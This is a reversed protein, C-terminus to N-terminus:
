ALTKRRKSSMTRLWVYGIVGSLLSGAFVGMRVLRAHNLSAAEDFALTGIFLSMTFGIGCLIALGYLMSWSIDDALKAVKLKVALWCATYVGIQKGLFLGLGIGLPISHIVDSAKIDHFTVGANAFAFIPLIAFAVWPHLCHELRRLPSTELLEGTQLPIAFALVVGALTAHIGSKLLCVWLVIGLLCYGTLNQVKCRNLIWLGLGCCAALSLALWSLHSTYFIAIIIIAGLDDIIALATLLVKLSAPVKNGLLALVGLAFAIDTAVPIAWGQLYESSHLNFACYILAPVLMGGTAAIIPLSMKVPSNLAGIWMERKIELGVLLFFVAMLGDNIWMLLPKALSFVGFNIGLPTDLLAEYTHYFPTNDWILAIFAALLLIIGSAAELKIFERMAKM